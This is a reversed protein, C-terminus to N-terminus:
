AKDQQFFKDNYAAKVKSALDLFDQKDTKNGTIEAYKAMINLIRYYFSTALIQGDTIRAPDKSWIINMNEPPMCWDGYQDKTVIYNKMYNTQMYNVRNKMSAYHLKIPKTDGYQEYLENVIHIYAAPWTINDSYFQWYAPAVDPLSGTERQSDNMDQTWKTNLLQNYFMYSEGVCGTARNGLWGMREDRQPCGTSFSRYNGMIGWCANHYIQNITSDSTKFTGINAM